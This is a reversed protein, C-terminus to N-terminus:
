NRFLGLGIFFYTPPVERPSIYPPLGGHAWLGGNKPPILEPAGFDWWFKYTPRPYAHFHTPIHSEGFQALCLEM